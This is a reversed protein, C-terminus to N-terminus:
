YVPRLIQVQNLVQNDLREEEMEETSVEFAEARILMFYGESLGDPSRSLPNEFSFKRTCYNAGIVGPADMNNDRMEEYFSHLLTQVLVRDNQWPSWFFQDTFGNEQGAHQLCDFIHHAWCYVFGDPQSFVHFYQRNASGHAIQNLTTNRIKNLTAQLIEDPIYYLTIAIEEGNIRIIKQEREELHQEINEVDVVPLLIQPQEIIQPQEKPISGASFSLDLYYNGFKIRM